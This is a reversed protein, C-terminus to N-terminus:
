IEEVIMYTYMNNAHGQLVSNGAASSGFKGAITSPADAISISKAWFTQTGNAWEEYWSYLSTSPYLSGSTTSDGRCLQVTVKLKKNGTYSVVGTSTNLSFKGGYNYKITNFPINVQTWAQTAITTNANLYVMIIAKGTYLEDLRTKDTASMLGASSTTANTTSVDYIGQEIHNLNTATIPTTTNPLDNWTQKTYAM